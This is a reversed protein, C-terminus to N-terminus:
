PKYPLELIDGLLYKKFTAFDLADIEGDSNLDAAKIGNDVPFKEIAGLLYM